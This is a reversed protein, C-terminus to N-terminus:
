CIRAIREDFEKPAGKVNYIRELLRRRITSVRASDMNCLHCIESNSFHLRVLICFDYEAVTIPHEPINITHFLNPVITDMLGRLKKWDEDNVSEKEVGNAKNKFHHYIESSMLQEDLLYPNQKEM